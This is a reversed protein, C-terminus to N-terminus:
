FVPACSGGKCMPPTLDLTYAVEQRLDCCWAKLAGTSDVSRMVHPEHEFGGAIGEARRWGLEELGLRAMM